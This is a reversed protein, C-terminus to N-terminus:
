PKWLGAADPTLDFRFSQVNGCYQCVLVLPVPSGIGSSGDFNTGAVRMPVFTQSNFNWEDHQGKDALRDKLDTWMGLIRPYPLYYGRACFICLMPKSLDLVRGGAEIRKIVAQVRDRLDVANSFGNRIRQQPDRQVTGKILEDVFAFEPASSFREALNREVLDSYDEQSGDYVDGTFLWYLVKGLSYVDAPALLTGPRIKPGRLEHACYYMSGRPGDSSMVYETDEIFCIGFDGVVPVGDESVFINAPKIDLHFVKSQHADAVGACIPLFMRLGVLLPLDLPGRTELSGGKCYPTVLYPKNSPTKGHEIIKLVNPHNLKECAQIERQFYEERKSNKLRKLVYETRESGDSRMVVYTHGQGGEVLDRVRTWKQPFDGMNQRLREKPQSDSYPM